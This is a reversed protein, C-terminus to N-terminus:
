SMKKTKEPQEQEDNSKEEITKYWTGPATTTIVKVETMKTTDIARWRARGGTTFDDPMQIIFLKQVPELVVEAVSETANLRSKAHSLIEEIEERAEAREEGYYKSLSDTLSDYSIPQKKCWAELEQILKEM